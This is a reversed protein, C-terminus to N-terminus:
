VSPSSTPRTSNENSDENNNNSCYITICCLATISLIITGAFLSYGVIEQWSVPQDSDPSQSAFSNVFNSLTTLSNTIKNFM